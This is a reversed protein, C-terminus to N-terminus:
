KPKEEKKKKKKKNEGEEKVEKEQKPQEFKEPPQIANTLLKLSGYVSVFQAM